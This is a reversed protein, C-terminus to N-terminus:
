AKRKRAAVEAEMAQLRKLHHERCTPCRNLHRRVADILYDDDAGRVAADALYELIAFCEDCNLAMRAGSEAALMLIRWFPRRKGTMDNVSLATCINKLCRWLGC